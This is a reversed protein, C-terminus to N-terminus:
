HIIFIPLSFFIEFSSSIMAQPLNTLIPRPLLILLTQINKINICPVLMARECSTLVAASVCFTLTSNQHLEFIECVFVNARIFSFPITHEFHQRVVVALNDVIVVVDVQGRFLCRRLHPASCETPNKYTISYGDAAFVAVGLVYNYGYERRYLKIYM